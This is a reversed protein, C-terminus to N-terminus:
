KVMYFHIDKKDYEEPKLGLRPKMYYLIIIMIVTGVGGVLLLAMATPMAGVAWSAFLNLITRCIDKVLEGASFIKSSIEEGAFNGMYTTVINYIGRFARQMCCFVFILGVQIGWPMPVTGIVGAMVMGLTLGMGMFTLTKNKLKKSIKAQNKSVTGMIWKFIATLATIYQVPIQIDTLLSTEYTDAICAYAWAIGTFLLLAKLRKSKFIFRFASKLDKIYQVIEEKTKKKEVKEPKNVEEFNRSILISFLIVIICVAFPLYINITYLFGSILTSIADLYYNGSVGKGEIKAFIESKQKGEPIAKKLILPEAVNKLAMSISSIFEAGILMPLNTALIGLIVYLIGFINALIAGKKAGLRDILITAPVQLLIKFITYFTYSILLDSARLERVEILFIFRVTYFFLMDYSLMRYFPYIKMNKKRMQAIEEIM